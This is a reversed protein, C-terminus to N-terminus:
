RGRARLVYEQSVMVSMRMHEDGRTLVTREWYAREEAAATRRLWARYARDVRIRASETSGYVGSIVSAQGRTRLQGSWHSVESSSATRGLARRYLEQVFGADTGGGRLYFERSAMFTPRMDDLRVQRAALRDLWFRMGSADPSRGLVDQYVATIYRRRYEESNTFGDAARWRDAATIPIWFDIESGGPERGLMDLYLGRVHFGQDTLTRAHQRIAPLQSYLNVGPCATYGVDRHGFVAAVTVTTGAAYKATGGGASTLTASAYPDAGHRALKWGIVRGISRVMGAPAGVLEYNGMAAVGFTRDNFGGSHAGRVARDIGGYRGEYITGFKDVLFNYGIDCWGLSQTHYAYIGRVISPGQGASYSNTGATHHVTAARISSSYSPSCSRLSEDAGWGRRTVMAPSAMAAQAASLPTSAVRTDDGPGTGPDITVVDLDPGPDEAPTEVSVQIADAGATVVPDTAVVSAARRYEETGADPGEDNPELLTWPSWGDDERVRVRLEGPEQSGADWRVGAVTFEDTEIVESVLVDSAPSEGSTRDAPPVAPDTTPDTPEDSAPDSTPDATPGATPEAVPRGSPGPTAEAGLEAAQAASLVTWSSADVRVTTVEPSVPGAAPLSVVDVVLFGAALTPILTATVIRKMTDGDSGDARACRIGATGGAV